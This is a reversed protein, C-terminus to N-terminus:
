KDDEGRKRRLKNLLSHLDKSSKLLHEMMSEPDPFRLSIFLKMVEDLMDKDEKIINIAASVIISALDRRMQADTFKDKNVATALADIIFAMDGSLSICADSPKRMNCGCDCMENGTARVYFTVTNEDDHLSMMRKIERDLNERDQANLVTVKGM